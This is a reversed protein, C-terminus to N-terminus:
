VVAMFLSGGGRDEERVLAESDLLGEDDIGHPVRAPAVDGHAPRAIGAPVIVDHAARSVRRRARSASGPARAERHAAVVRRGAFPAIMEFRVALRDRQRSLRAAALVVEERGAPAEAQGIAAAAE